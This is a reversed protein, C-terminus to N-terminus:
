FFKRAGGEVSDNKFVNLAPFTKKEPTPPPTLTEVVINKWFYLEQRRGGWILQKESKGVVAKKKRVSFALWFVGFLRRQTEPNLARPPPFKCFFLWFPETKKVM